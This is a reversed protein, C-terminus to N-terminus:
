EVNNYYIIAIYCINHIYVRLNNSSYWLRSGPTYGTYVTDGGRADNKALREAHGIIIM